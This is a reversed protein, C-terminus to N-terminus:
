PGPKKWVSVPDNNGYSITDVLIFHHDNIYKILRATQPLTKGNFKWTESFIVYDPQFVEIYDTGCGQWYHCGILGKNSPLAVNNDYAIKSGYPINEEIYSYVKYIQTDKYMLRTYGAPITVSFDAILVFFLFYSLPIIVLLKILAINSKRIIFLAIGLLNLILFPYIPLFYVSQILYRASISIMIVYLVSSVINVIYFIKGIKQDRGLIIAGLLTFPSLAISVYIIPITKIMQLWIKIAETHSVSGNTQTSFMTMQNAIFVKPQIFAFPNIIFFVIISLLITFLLIQAFRRTFAFKFISMNHYHCHLYYFLFLVPLATIFFVQKSLASLVLSILGVTYWRHDEARGDNFNLLSLIGLLLFLLGTSEPHLIYFHSFVVPSAILLLAATFSLFLNRLLRKAVEYYALIASLGILFFIFRIGVFFFYYDDPIINLKQAIYVPALLLFNIVYYTWGYYSSHYAANMNYYHQYLSLISQIISGPDIEYALVFNIDRVVVFVHPLFLITFISILIIRYPSSLFDQVSKKEIHLLRFHSIFETSLSFKARNLM